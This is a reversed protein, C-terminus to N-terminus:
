ADAKGEGSNDKKGQTEPKEQQEGGLTSEAGLTLEIWEPPVYDLIRRPPEGRKYQILGASEGANLFTSVAMSTVKAETAIAAPMRNGDALVWMRKRGDSTCIKEIEKKVAQSNSLLLIKSIVKLERLTADTDSM